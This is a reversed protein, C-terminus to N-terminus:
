LDLYEKSVHSFRSDTSVDQKLDIDDKCVTHEPFFVREGNRRYM